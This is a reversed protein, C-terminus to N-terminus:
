LKRVLYWLLKECCTIGTCSRTFYSCTSNATNMIEKCIWQIALTRFIQLCSGTLHLTKWFVWPELVAPYGSWHMLPQHTLIGCTQLGETSKISSFDM